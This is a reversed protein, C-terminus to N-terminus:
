SFAERQIEKILHRKIQSMIKEPLRCSRLILSLILSDRVGLFGAGANALAYFPTRSIAPDDPGVKSPYDLMRSQAKCLTKIAEDIQSRQRQLYDIQATIQEPL